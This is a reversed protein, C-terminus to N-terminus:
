NGGRDLFRRRAERGVINLSLTALFIMVGPFVILWPSGSLYVSGDSIMQGWSPTPPQVGLGLYSLSSEVLIITATELAALVSLPGFVNPLIHRFIIRADSCGIMRAAEVFAIDRYTLTVSRAVRVYTVWRVASLIIILTILGGGITYTLFIYLVLSPFSLLGDVIRMLVADFRGGRYGAILGLPIGIAASVIVGGLGVGLSIRAGYILRSFVDRGLSDTGLLHYKGDSGISGPALLTNALSQKLPDDPAILNPVVACAALALIVVSAVAFIVLRLDIKIRPRVGVAAPGQPSSLDITTM